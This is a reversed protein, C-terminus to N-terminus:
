KGVLGLKKFMDSALEFDQNVYKETEEPAMYLSVFGANSLNTQVAPDVAMQKFLSTLYDLIPKPTGKKGILAHYTVRVVDYGKERCTPVDPFESSRKTDFVVLARARGGKLHTSLTGFSGGTCTVHGGLMALTAATGSPFPVHNLKIGAEKMLIEFTLHAGSAIGTTSYTM